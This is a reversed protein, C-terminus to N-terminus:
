SIHCSDAPPPEAKKLGVVSTRLKEKQSESGKEWLFWFLERKERAREALFEGEKPDPLLDLLAAMKVLAEDIAQQSAYSVLLRADDVRANGKDYFHRVCSDVASLFERDKAKQSALQFVRDYQVHSKGEPSRALQDFIADVTEQGGMHRIVEISPPVHPILEYLHSLWSNEPYWMFEIDKRFFMWLCAWKRTQQTVRSLFHNMGEENGIEYTATIAQAKEPNNEGILLGLQEGIQHNGGVLAWFFSLKHNFPRGLRSARQILAKSADTNSEIIALEILRGLDFEDVTVMQDVLLEITRTLDYRLAYVVVESRTSASSSHWYPQLDTEHDRWWTSLQHARTYIDLGYPLTDMFSDIFPNEKRLRQFCSFFQHSLRQYILPEITLFHALDWQNVARRRQQLLEKTLMGQELLPQITQLDLTSFFLNLCKINADIDSSNWSIPLNIIRITRQVLIGHQHIRKIRFFFERAVMAISQPDQKLTSLTDNSFYEFTITLIERPFGTLSSIFNAM